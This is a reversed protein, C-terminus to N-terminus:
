KLNEILKKCTSPLHVHLPLLVRELLREISVLTVGQNTRFPVRDPVRESSISGLHSQTRILGSM